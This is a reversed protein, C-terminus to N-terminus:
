VFGGINDFVDLEGIGGTINDLECVCVFKINDFIDLKGLCGTINNLEYV